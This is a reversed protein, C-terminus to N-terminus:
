IGPPFAAANWVMLVSGGVMAADALNFVPWVRLDIFDTVANRSVGDLLNGAAGGVLGALAVHMPPRDILAAIMWAAAVLLLWMITMIRVATKSGWPNRRNVVHRLRLGLIAGSTAAGEPLRAVVLAKAAQDAVVVVVFVSLLLLM